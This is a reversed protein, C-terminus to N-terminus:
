AAVPKMAVITTVVRDMWVNQAAEKDKDEEGVGAKRRGFLGDVDKGLKYVSEVDKWSTLRFLYADLAGDQALDAVEIEAIPSSSSILTRMDDLTSKSSVSPPGVRLLLLSTTTASIGFKRISEGINGSPHLAFLVESHATKTKMGGEVESGAGRSVALLAQHLGTRLHRESTILRADIFAYNLTERESPTGSPAAILRSRLASSTSPDLSPFLALTTSQYAPPLHPFTFVLVSM